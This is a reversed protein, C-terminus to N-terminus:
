SGAGALAQRAQEIHRLEHAALITFISYLSYRVNAFVSVVKVKHIPLGDASLVRDLQEKQLSEFEALVQNRHLDGAPTFAAGTKAKIRTTPLVSKWIMWGIPDRRYRAPPGGGVSRARSLGDDITPINARATINLHDICEAASWGGGEPRRVWAEEPESAMANVLSSAKEFQQVIEAIQPHM